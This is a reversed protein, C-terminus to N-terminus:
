DHSAQYRLLGSRYQRLELEMLSDRCPLRPMHEIAPFRCGGPADCPLHIQNQTPPVIPLTLAARQLAQPSTDAAHHGEILRAEAVEPEIDPTHHPFPPRLRRRGHPAKPRGRSQATRDANSTEDLRNRTLQSEIRALDDRADTSSTRIHLSILHFPCAAGYDLRYPTFSHLVLRQLLSAIADQPITLRNAALQEVKENASTRFWRLV